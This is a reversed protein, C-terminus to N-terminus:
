RTRLPRGSMGISIWILGTWAEWGIEKPDKEINDEWRHRPRRLLKMGTVKGWWFETHTERRRQMQWTLLIDTVM